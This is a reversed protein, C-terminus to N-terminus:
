LLLLVIATYDAEHNIQCLFRGHHSLANGAAGAEEM